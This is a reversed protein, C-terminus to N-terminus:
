MAGTCYMTYDHYCEPSCFMSGTDSDHSVLGGCNACKGIPEPDGENWEVYVGRGKSPFQAATPDVVAGDKTVLWWHTREGWTHCYYHGRVRRLEPFAAAMEKTISSCQGYGDGQVNADIWEQYTM